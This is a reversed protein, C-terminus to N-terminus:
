RWWKQQAAENMFSWALLRSVKQGQAINITKVEVAGIQKLAHYCGPLSEKKSILSTFWLVSSAFATSETIMKRVFGEEGGTCWLENQQGGFNLTTDAKQQQRLNKWKRETGQVAEQLSSHFPPNCVTLSFTEGAKIVDKFTHEKANQRRISIQKNLGNIEVLNRASRVAVTDIDSGVFSWGYEHSGILPYVANAGVGVDLVKVTKGRPIQGGHSQALLDAAYHLYDARGPIPPCLYGEPIDWFAVGYVHKLLARNLAKVAVADKFNISLAQYGNLSVYPALEPSSKILAPFDYRQKHRNRPHLQAKEEHVRKSNVPM